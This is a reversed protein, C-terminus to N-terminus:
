YKLNWKKIDKDILSLNNSNNDTDIYNDEM